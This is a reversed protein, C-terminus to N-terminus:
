LSKTEELGANNDSMKHIAPLVDSPLAGDLTGPHLTLLNSAVQSLGGQANDQFEGGILINNTCGPDNIRFGSGGCHAIVLKKFTNGTCETGPLFRWGGATSVGAEAMFIGHHHSQKITVRDFINDRSQRMFIGLDNNTLLADRIVNHNFSLDLSIGAGPNDHLNLHVFHSDETAYCALGDFQNDFATYYQVTLRRVGASSVLGGSRCHGCVVHDVEAGVTGWVVVGNNYVGGAEPLFRWVEKDQHTKNGDISLDSLQVGRTPNNSTAKLSGLIVVPCNAGDALYLITSPGAGRLAQDDKRLRIPERIVYTGAGLVVESGAPLSDLASQIGQGGESPAVSHVAEFSSLPLLFLLAFIPTAKLSM